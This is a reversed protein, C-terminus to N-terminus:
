ITVGVEALVLLVDDTSTVVAYIGGLRRITDRAHRQESSLGREAEKPTKVEIGIYIGACIILDPSGKKGTTMHRGGVNVSATNNRTWYLLGHDELVGLLEQIDAKIESESKQQRM